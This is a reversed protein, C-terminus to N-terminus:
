GLQSNPSREEWTLRSLFFFFITRNVSLRQIIGPHKVEIVRTIKNDKSFTASIKYSPSSRNSEKTLPFFFSINTSWKYSFKIIWATYGCNVLFELNYQLPSLSLSIIPIRLYIMTTAFQAFIKPPVLSFTYLIKLHLINCQSEISSHAKQCVWGQM